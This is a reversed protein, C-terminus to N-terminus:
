RYAHPHRMGLLRHVEQAIMWQERAQTVIVRVASDPDQIQAAEFERLRLSSNADEDLRLGLFELRECICRRMSASNEGIGGTFAVVDMGGMAVGRFARSAAKGTSPM